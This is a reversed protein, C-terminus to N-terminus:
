TDALGTEISDVVVHPQDFFDKALVAMMKTTADTSSRTSENRNASSSLLLSANASVDLASTNEGAM